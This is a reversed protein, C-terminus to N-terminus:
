FIKRFVRSLLSIKKVPETFDREDPQAFVPPPPPPPRDLGLQKAERLRQEHLSRTHAPEPKTSWTEVIPAPDKEEYTELYVHTGRGDFAVNRVAFGTRRLEAYLGYLDAVKADVVIKKEM